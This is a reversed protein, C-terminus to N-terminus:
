QIINSLTSKLNSITLKEKLSLKYIDNYIVPDVWPINEKINSYKTGPKFLYKKQLVENSKQSLDMPTFGEKKNQYRLLFLLLIIYILKKWRM